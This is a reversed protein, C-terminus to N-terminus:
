GFMRRWEDLNRPQYVFNTDRVHSLNASPEASYQHGPYVVPDDPLKALEQLSAYIAEADGGPFDTRGCGELFLTDGSVLKGDVLFCQSGPTHGPTHLLRIPVAGVEVVDDHDHGRLDSGSVGTTRRVWEAEANNVHVPVPQLALLEALGPLTFGMMTGGVHDPHHHTALVGTLRMDDEALVDLLDGVAYAPDVIVAERTETDGILYAFNVMQTAVPDGVAFDRGALLQRFYLRDSM